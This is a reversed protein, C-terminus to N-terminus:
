KKGFRGMYNEDYLEWKVDTYFLGTGFGFMEIKNKDSQKTGTYFLWTGFRFSNSLFTFAAKYGHLVVLNWIRLCLNASHM